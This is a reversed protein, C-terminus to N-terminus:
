KKSEGTEEEDNCYDTDCLCALISGDGKDTIDRKACHSAPVLPDSISGLLVSTSFCERLIAAEHQSQRWTYM